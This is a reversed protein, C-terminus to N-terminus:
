RQFFLKMDNWYATMTSTNALNALVANSEGGSAGPSSQYLQYYTFVPTIGNAVSDEIYYSVFQGNANWNAWGNSTNAGGALYQYRFGFPAVARASAAGGPSDALGIEVRAPWGSPLSGAASATPVQNEFLARGSLALATLLL